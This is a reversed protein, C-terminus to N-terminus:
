ADNRFSWCAELAERWTVSPWGMRARLPEGDLVSWAPRPAATPFASTDVALVPVALGAVEMIASAFGHWTTHGQHSHHWIGQPMDKGLKAVEVLAQALLPAATPVGHQDNVVSLSGHAKALRLMTQLFNAGQVDYLWSVRIVCGCVGSALFAEEGQRKSEAYVGEPCPTDSPLLPRRPAQGFVYDTSVHILPIGRAQCAEALHQTGRANVAMAADRQSEAMDVATYAAANIVVTPQVSDLAAEVSDRSAVDMGERDLGAASVGAAAAAEMLRLGLQGKAGAVLMHTTATEMSM